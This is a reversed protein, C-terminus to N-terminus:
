HSISTSFGNILLVGAVILGIGIIAPADLTQNYLIWSVV